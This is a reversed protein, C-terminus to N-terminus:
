LDSAIININDLIVSGRYRDNWNEGVGKTILQLTQLPCQESPVAFSIKSLRQAYTGPKIEIDTLRGNRGVCNIRWLLGKPIHAEKASVQFKLEFTGPPLAIYQSFSLGQVPTNNFLLKVGFTDDNREQPLSISVSSNNSVRWDFIRGSFPLSFRGNHVYGSVNKDEVNLTLLFTQYALNYKKNQMLASLIKSVEANSPPADGKALSQVLRAALLLTKPDRSLSNLLAQRWPPSADLKKLLLEYQDAYSFIRAILPTLPVIHSPWRRFLIDLQSLADPVKNENMLRLIVWRLASIETKSINLARKYALYSEAETGSRHKLEGLISYLRADGAHTSLFASLERELQTQEEMSPQSDLARLAKSITAEINIPYLKLSLNSQDDEFNRSLGISLIILIAAFAM